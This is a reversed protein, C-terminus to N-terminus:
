VATVKKKKGSVHIDGYRKGWCRFMWLEAWCTTTRERPNNM